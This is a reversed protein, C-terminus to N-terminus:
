RLDENQNAVEENAVEIRYIRDKLSAIKMLNTKLIDEM